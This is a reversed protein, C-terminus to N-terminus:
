ASASEAASTTYLNDGSTADHLAYLPVAGCEPSTAIYGMTVELTQGGCTADTTYMHGMATRCRYFPVLGPQQAAYLYYAYQQEVTYGCCSAESDTTTYFHQGTTSDYSRDVGVRCGLVGVCCTFETSAESASAELSAGDSSARADVGSDSPLPGSDSPPAGGADAHETADDGGGDSARGGTQNEGACSLLVVLVVPGAAKM